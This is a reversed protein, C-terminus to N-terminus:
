RYCGKPNNWLDEMKCWLKANQQMLVNLLMKLSNLDLNTKDQDKIIDKWFLNGDTRRKKKLAEQM